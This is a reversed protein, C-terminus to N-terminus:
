LRIQGQSQHIQNILNKVLLNLFTKIQKIGMIQQSPNTLVPCHGTGVFVVFFGIRRSLVSSSIIKSKYKFFRIKLECDPTRLADAQGISGFAVSALVFFGM